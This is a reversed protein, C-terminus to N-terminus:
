VFPRDTYKNIALYKEMVIAKDNNTNNFVIKVNL